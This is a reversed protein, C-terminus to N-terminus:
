QQLRELAAGDRRRTQEIEQAPALDHAENDGLGSRQAGLGRDGVPQLAGNSPTEPTQVNATGSQAAAGSPAVPRTKALLQKEQALASMVARYSGFCGLLAMAFVLASYRLDHALNNAGRLLYELALLLLGLGVGWPLWRQAFGAALTVGPASSYLSASIFVFGFGTAQMAAGRLRQVVWYRGARAVLPHLAGVVTAVSFATAALRLKPGFTAHAIALGSDVFFPTGVSWLLLLLLAFLVAVWRDREDQEDYSGRLMALADLQAQTLEIAVPKASARSPRPKVSAGAATPQSPRPSARVPVPESVRGAPKSSADRKASLMEAAQQARLSARSEDPDASKPAARRVRQSVLPPAEDHSRAPAGSEAGNDSTQAPVRARPSRGSVRPAQVGTDPRTADLKAARRQPALGCCVLLRQLLAGADAPRQKPDEHLCAATLQVFGGSVQPALEDLPVASRTGAQFPLVGSLMHYLLVGCAFVDATPERATAGTLDPARYAQAQVPLEPSGVDLGVLKASPDHLPGLLLVHAPDLADHVVGADHALALAEVLPVVVAALLPLPMGQPFAGILDALTRGEVLEQVVFPAGTDDTDVCVRPLCRHALSELSRARTAFRALENPRRELELSPRKVWVASGDRLDRARYVDHTAHSSVLEELEYTANLLELSRQTSSVAV